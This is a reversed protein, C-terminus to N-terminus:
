YAEVVTTVSNARWKCNIHLVELVISCKELVMGFIAVMTMACYLIFATQISSTLDLIQRKSNRLLIESTMHKRNLHDKFLQMRYRQHYIGSQFFMKFLFPSRSNYMNHFGCSSPQSKYEDELYDFESKPYNDSM